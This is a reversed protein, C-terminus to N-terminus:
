VDGLVQQGCRILEFRLLSKDILKSNQYGISGAEARAARIYKLGTWFINRFHTEAFLTVETLM